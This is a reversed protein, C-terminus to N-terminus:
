VCRVCPYLDCFFAQCDMKGCLSHFGDFGVNGWPEPVFIKILFLGLMVAVYVIGSVVRKLMDGSGSLLSM